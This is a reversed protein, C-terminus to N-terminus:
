EWYLTSANNNDDNDIMIIVILIIMIMIMIIMILNNDNNSINNNSDDNDWENGAVAGFLFHISERPQKETKKHGLFPIGLILGYAHRKPSQLQRPILDRRSFVALFFFM